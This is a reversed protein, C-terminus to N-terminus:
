EHFPACGKVSRILSFFHRIECHQLEGITNPGKIFCALDPLCEQVKDCFETERMSPEGVHRAWELM